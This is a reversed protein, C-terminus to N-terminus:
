VKFRSVAQILRSGVAGLNRSSEATAGIATNNEETAQAIREIQQAIDTSAASQETLADAIEKVADTVQSEMARIEQITDGAEESLQVGSAVQGVSENMSGVSVAAANLIEGIVKSIEQTSQTTREALKRVEDAVVAFGRGQEGARAAEIAANLALLNTQDAIDKIMNVIGSVHDIKTSLDNIQGSAVNVASAIKRVSETTRATVEGGKESLGGVKNALDRTDTTRSSIHNISVTMEEVSAAISSSAESQMGSARAVESSSHSLNEAMTALELADNKITTVVGHLAKQMTNMAGLLKGLEATANTPVPKTLDGDAIHQAAIVADHLPETISRIIIWAVGFGLGLGALLVLISVNRATNYDSIGGSYESKAVKTQHEILKKIGDRCANFTSRFGSSAMLGKMKDKDGSNAVAILENIEVHFTKFPKELAAVMTKEDPDLYTALYAQWQEDAAKVYGPIEAVEGAMKAPDDALLATYIRTRSRHLDDLIVSLQGLPEARDEYVTQLRNKVAATSNLGVGGIITMFAALLSVLLVLRGKVGLNDFM